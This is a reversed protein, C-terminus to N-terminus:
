CRYFSQGIGKLSLIRLEEILALIDEYYLRPPLNQSSQAVQIQDRIGIPPVSRLEPRVFFSRLKDAYFWDYFTGLTVLLGRREAVFSNGVSGLATLLSSLFGLKDFFSMNNPYCIEFASPTNGLIELNPFPNNLFAPTLTTGDAEINHGDSLYAEYFVAVLPYLILQGDFPAPYGKCGALEFIQGIPQAGQNFTTWMMPQLLFPGDLLWQYGNPMKVPRKAPDPFLVGPLWTLDIPVIFYNDQDFTKDTFEGLDIADTSLKKPTWKGSKFESIAIYMLRDKKPPDVNTSGGQDSSSPVPLSSPPSAQSQFEPWVIYLRENNVLPVVTNAKIDCDVKSWATWRRGGIFQRYYFLPPNGSTNGFVHLTQNSEQYFMRSVELKSVNDLADLYHEFATEVNDPTLENQQLENQLATFIESKDKRLEPECYNEPYAFVMRNAEWVRYYKMWSWDNWGSDNDVSVRVLPELGMFCRQVFLQVSASAQVIRSSPQCSCMEVDILCYAFLDEPDTWKGTPNDSPMPQTLLYAVLSDRKRQRLNDQIPKSLSLYTAEDFRGRLTQKLAASDLNSLTPTAWTATTKATAGLQQLINFAQTIWLWGAATEYVVPFSEVVNGAATLWAIDAENWETLSALDAAFQTNNYGAVPPYILKDIIDLLSLDPISLSHHLRM